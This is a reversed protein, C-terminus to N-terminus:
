PSYFVWRKELLEYFPRLALKKLLLGMWKDREQTTAAWLFLQQKNGAVSDGRKNVKKTPILSKAKALSPPTAPHTTTTDATATVDPSSLSPDVRLPISSDASYAYKNRPQSPLMIADSQRMFNHFESTDTDDFAELTFACDNKKNSSSAHVRDLEIVCRVKGEKADQPSVFYCLRDELLVFWRKQVGSAGQKYLWGEMEPHLFQLKAKNQTNGGEMIIENKQINNYFTALQQFPLDMGRDVGRNNLVFQRLTMRHKITPNHADTNLMILSFSLVFATDSCSFVGPNQRHYASSFCDMIRDIQQAEGPILYGALFFRLAADIGMGVFNFSNCYAQLVAINFPQYHGLFEGIAYKSLERQTRLFSSVAVPDEVDILSHESLYRLGRHFNENFVRAAEKLHFKGVIDELEERTLRSTVSNAVVRTPSSAATNVMASASASPPWYFPLHAVQMLLDTEHSPNRLLRAKQLSQSQEPSVLPAPVKAISGLPTPPDLNLLAVKTPSGVPPPPIAISLLIEKSSRATDFHEADNVATTTITPSTTAILPTTSDTTTTTATNPPPVDEPLSGVPPVSDREDM